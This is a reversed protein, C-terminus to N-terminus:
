QLKETRWMLQLISATLEEPFLMAIASGCPGLWEASSCVSIIDFLSDNLSIFGLALQGNLGMIVAIDSMYCNYM